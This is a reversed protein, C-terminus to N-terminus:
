LGEIFSRDVISGAEKPYSTRTVSETWRKIEEIFSDDPLQPTNFLPLTVVSNIEDSYNPIFTAMTDFALNPNENLNVIAKAYAKHFKSIANNKDKIAKETFAIINLSQRPIDPFVLKKLGRLQGVSAFPEPFIGGDLQGAIIAELRAPIENIYVKDLKKEDALYKELVYNTVSIEMTGIALRDKELANEQVLLPFVGDTSLTGKLSFDSSSHTVLAVLDTMAGDVQETQLATQRHQANTFLILEVDVGEQQFYQKELAVYFPISDVASMMGVTLKDVESSGKEKKCNVSVFLVVLLLFAITIRKRM